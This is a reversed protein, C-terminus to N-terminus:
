AEYPSQRGNNIDVTSKRVVIGKSDIVTIQPKSSSYNELRITFIGSTPNPFATVKRTATTIPQEVAIGRAAQCSLAVNVITPATTINGNVDKVRWAITSKGTNFAGSADAGTGSRSTVGTIVYTISDVACNDSATLGPITYNGSGPCLSQTAPPTIMPKQNDTVIVKQLNSTKNGYIDIVTWTITTTGVSYVSPANNTVSAIGCNDATVPTGM